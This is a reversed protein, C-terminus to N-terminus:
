VFTSQKYYLYQSYDETILIPIPEHQEKMIALQKELYGEREAKTSDLNRYSIVNDDKDVLIIPVTENSSIIEIAMNFDKSSDNIDISALEKIAKSWLEVKKREETALKSVFEDTYWLSAVGILIATILLLLKLQLKRNYLNLM